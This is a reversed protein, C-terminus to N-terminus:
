LKLIQQVANSTSIKNEGEITSVQYGNPIPAISYNGNIEVNKWQEANDLPPNGM